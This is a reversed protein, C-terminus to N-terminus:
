GGVPVSLWHAAPALRRDFTALGAVDL